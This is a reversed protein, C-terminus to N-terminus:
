SLLSQFICRLKKKEDMQILNDISNLCNFIFHPEDPQTTSGLKAKSLQESM